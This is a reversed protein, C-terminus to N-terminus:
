GGPPGTPSAAGPRRLALVAAALLAVSGALCLWLGLGVGVVRSGSGVPPAVVAVVALAALAAALAALAVRAARGTGRTGQRYVLAVAAAV